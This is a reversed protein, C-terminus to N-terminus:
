LAGHTRVSDAVEKATAEDDSRVQVWLLQGASIQVVREIVVGGCDTSTLTMAPDTRFTGTV